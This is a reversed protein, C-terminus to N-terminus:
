DKEWQHDISEVALLSGNSLMSYVGQNSRKENDLLFGSYTEGRPPVERIDKDDYVNKM